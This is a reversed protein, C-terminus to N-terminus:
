TKSKKERREKPSMTKSYIREMVVKDRTEWLGILVLFEELPGLPAKTSTPLHLTVKGMEDLLLFTTGTKRTIKM